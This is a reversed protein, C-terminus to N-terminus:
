HLDGFTEILKIAFNQIMDLETIDFPIASSKDRGHKHVFDELAEKRGGVVIVSAGAKVMHEVLAAGVGSTAGIVLVKKYPFSM